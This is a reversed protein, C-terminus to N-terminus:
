CCHPTLLTVSQLILQLILIHLTLKLIYLFLLKFVVIPGIDGNEISVLFPKLIKSM